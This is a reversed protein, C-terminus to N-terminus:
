RRAQAWRDASSCCRRRAASRRSRYRRPSIPLANDRCTRVIAQVIPRAEVVHAPRGHEPRTLDIRRPFERHPWGLVGGRGLRRHIVGDDPDLPQLLGVRGSKPREVPDIEGDAAALDERQETLVACSLRRQDARDATEHARAGPADQDVPVVGHRVVAGRPRLDAEHGLLQM